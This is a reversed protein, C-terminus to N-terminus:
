CKYGFTRLLSQYIGPKAQARPLSFHFSDYDPRSLYLTTIYLEDHATMQTYFSM